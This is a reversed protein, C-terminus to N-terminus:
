CGNCREFGNVIDDNVDSSESQVGCNMKYQLSRETMRLSTFLDARVTWPAHISRSLFILLASELTL